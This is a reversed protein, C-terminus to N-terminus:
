RHRAAAPGDQVPVTAPRTDTRDLRQEAFQLLPALPLLVGLLILWSEM